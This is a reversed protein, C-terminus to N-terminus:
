LNRRVVAKCDNAISLYNRVYSLEVRKDCLTQPTENMQLTGLKESLISLLVALVGTVDSKQKLEDLIITKETRM